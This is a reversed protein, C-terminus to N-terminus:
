KSFYVHYGVLVQSALAAHTPYADQIKRFSSVLQIPVVSYGIRWGPMGFSKSLSFVHIIRPYSSVFFHTAEDHMFEFYTQDVV